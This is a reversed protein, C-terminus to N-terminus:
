FSDLNTARSDNLKRKKTSIQSFESEDISINSIESSSSREYYNIVKSGRRKRSAMLKIIYPGLKDVSNTM